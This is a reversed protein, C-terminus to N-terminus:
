QKLWKLVAATYINSLKIIYLGNAVSLANIQKSYSGADWKEDLVKRGTADFITIALADDVPKASNVVVSSSNPQAIWYNGAINNM